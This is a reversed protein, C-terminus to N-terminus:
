NLTHPQDPAQQGPLVLGYRRAYVEGFDIIQLM